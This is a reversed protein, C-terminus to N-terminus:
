GVRGVKETLQSAQQNYIEVIKMMNQFSRTTDVMQAMALVANVNSLELAGHRVAIKGKPMPTVQDAPASFLTGGLKHLKSSDAVRVIGLTAVQTGNVSIAGDRSASVKGPPLTIPGGAADLVLLGSQTVLQGGDGLMFNGARTYAESGDAQQVRFYGEGNIAFDLPNGTQQITGESTDIFNKGAALYASPQRSSGAGRMADTLMTSFANQDAKFGVTNVNALNNAIQDMSLQRRLDGASGAIYFGRDM